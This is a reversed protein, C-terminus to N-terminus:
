GWNRFILECGQKRFLRFDSHVAYMKRNGTDNWITEIEAEGTVFDTEASKNNSVNKIKYLVEGSIKNHYRHSYSQFM